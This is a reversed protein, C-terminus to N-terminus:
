SACMSTRVSLLFQFQARRFSHLWHLAALSPKILTLPVSAPVGAVCGMASAWEEGQGVGAGFLTDSASVRGKKFKEWKRKGPFAGLPEALTTSEFFKILFLIVPTLHANASWPCPLHPQSPATEPHETMRACGRGCMPLRASLLLALLRIGPLGLLLLALETRAGAM